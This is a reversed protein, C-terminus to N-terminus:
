FLEARGVGCEDSGSEGEVRESDEDDDRSEVRRGESNEKSTGVRSEDGTRSKSAVVRDSSVEVGGASVDRWAM